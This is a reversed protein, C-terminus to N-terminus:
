LNISVRRDGSVAEGIVAAVFANQQCIARAAEM